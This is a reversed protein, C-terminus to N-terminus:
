VRMVVNSIIRGGNVGRGGGWGGEGGGRGGGGGREGGGGRKGRGEEEGEEVLCGGWDTMVQLVGLISFFSKVLDNPDLCMEINNTVDTTILSGITYIM